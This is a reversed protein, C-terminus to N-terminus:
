KLVHLWIAYFRPSGESKCLTSIKITRKDNVLKLANKDVLEGSVDKIKVDQCVGRLKKELREGRLCLCENYILGDHENKRFAAPEDALRFEGNKYLKRILNLYNVTRLSEKNTRCQDQQEQILRCLQKNFDNYEDLVDKESAFESDKCFELLIMYAMRLDFMADSLRGHMSTNATSERFKTLRWDIWTYIDEYNEVYWKLFYYYFTSVLLPRKRQYKDLITGNIRKTMRAIIVRPMTSEEGVFYEGILIANGGFINQVMSDGEKHGRGTDDSIRRIIEEAAIENTRKISRAAATHLDDIVVTCEDHEALCEEIYALSSNFRTDARVGDNRNYLQTIQPVYQSKLMGSRGVVVLITRPIHGAKNFAARTLGSIVQAMVIRGIEHSLCILEKIGEYAQKPTIEEDIDLRFHCTNLEIKQALDTASSRTIVRDGAVFVVEGDVYTIGLKDIVCSQTKEKM